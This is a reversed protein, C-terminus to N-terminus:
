CAILNRGSKLILKRVKTKRRRYSLIGKSNYRDARFEFVRVMVNSLPPAASNKPM